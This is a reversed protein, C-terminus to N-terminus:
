KTSVEQATGMKATAVRSIPPPSMPSRKGLVVLFASSSTHGSAKNLIKYDKVEASHYFRERCKVM